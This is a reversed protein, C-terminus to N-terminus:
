RSADGISSSLIRDEKASQIYIEVWESYCSWNTITEQHFNGSFPNISCMFGLGLFEIGTILRGFHEHHLHVM